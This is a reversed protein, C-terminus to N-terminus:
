VASTSLPRLLAPSLRLYASTQADCLGYKPIVVPSKAERSKSVEAAIVQLQVLGWGGKVTVSPFHSNKPLTQGQGATPKQM